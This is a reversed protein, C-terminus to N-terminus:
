RQLRYDSFRIEMEMRGSMVLLSWAAKMWIREPVMMEEWQKWGIKMSFEKVPAKPRPM